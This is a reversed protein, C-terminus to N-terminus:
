FVVDVVVNFTNPSLPDGQTVGPAGYFPNRLIGRSLDRNNPPGLAYTPPPPVVTGGWVGRPGWPM